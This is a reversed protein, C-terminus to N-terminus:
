QIITISGTIPNVEEVKLDIVFFYAGPTIIGKQRGDWPEAYGQSKFITHGWRNFITVECDPYNALEKINWVDNFGDGDPTFATPIELSGNVGVRITDSTACGTESIAWVTFTTTFDPQVIATTDMSTVVFSAPEWEYEVGIDSSASITAQSPAFVFQDKGGRVVPYPDVRIHVTDPSFPCVGNEVNWLVYQQGIELGFVDTVLASSDDFSLSNVPSSWYGAGVSPASAQVAVANTDCIVIDAQASVEAESSYNVIAMTDRELSCVGNGVAWEILTTGISLGIVDSQHDTSDAIIGTGSVISWTGSGIAPVGAALTVISDHCLEIDVGADAVSPYDFRTVTFSCTDSNGYADVVVFTNITNGVPYFLGSSIGEIQNVTFGACNDLYGPTDFVFISDCISTDAPCLLTPPVTDIVEIIRSCTDTNGSQDYAVYTLVTIGVPFFSGTDLSTTDIQIITDVTCNDTASPWSFQLTAGCAGSDNFVILSDACSIVPDITDLVTISVEVSDTNGFSDTAVFWHESTSDVWSCDFETQSLWISDLTCNDYTGSDMAFVDASALGGTDLYITDSQTFLFPALTDLVVVDVTAQNVNGNVDTVTLTIAITDGHSVCGFAASDITMSAIGCSDWSGTDISDATITAQGGSDLYIIFGQAVVEPAVSDVVTVVATDSHTNGHIDIVTLVVDNTGVHACDFATQSLYMSDIGCADWSGNNIMTTDISQNGSSDLYITIDQTLVAPAVTDHVIVFSSDGAVNGSVDRIFLAVTQTDGVHSCDYNNQSIWSSDIGCNDLSSSDVQSPFIAVLGQSDLYVVLDIAYVTPALTDYVRVQFDNSGVNGSSDRVFLTTTHVISTDICEFITDSVWLSDIACNDTSLSDVQNPSLGVQGNSDLFLDISAVPIVIPAITDLITVTASDSASNGSIDVATFVVVKSTTDACNFDYVSLYTTDISCNDVSGSDLMSSSISAQGNGDLYITINQLQVIPALTDVLTVLASDSSSNGSHDTATLWVAFTGTDACTFSTTDLQLNAIGCSDWTGNNIEAVTLEYNGSSDLFITASQTIVQPAITDYVIVQASASSLNGHIDLAFLSITNAGTDGCGFSDISLYMSDIGCSDWSGNNIASVSTSVVGHSDLYLTINQTIVEPAITDYVVVLTSTSDVNGNVDTVSLTVEITDGHAACNFYSTDIAYGAIGCSDWSASDIWTPDITAQGTSDLFVDITQYALAAPAITDVVQVTAVNSDTNGSIDQAYLTVVQTGVHSCDFDYQGLWMTDIACSDWSGSNIDAVDISAAGFSDLGLTINQTIITPAITDFIFLTAVSESQNGNVDLAFITVLTTGTDGCGFETASLWISDIGCSDWTGNNVAAATTSVQGFSDLYLTQSQWIITPAITDMVRVLAQASDANASADEAFLWVPITDGAAACSFDYQSLWMTDIGCSDWSASDVDLPAISVLGSSDLYVTINKPIVSPGITDIVQVVTLTSDTNGHIDQGYLWTNNNGLHACEFDYQSLWLTDIGCSDWSGNNVESAAINAAGSSDLAVTITQTILTPAITDLIVAYTQGQSANGNVDSATFTIAVTDGVGSCDFSSTDIAISAIGCSDWTASDFDAAVVSQQGFSDLYVLQPQLLIHPAITDYIFISLQASDANGSSDQAILWVSNQGTDACNFMPQTLWMIDIACNDFSFSDVSDPIVTVLGNSDLYATYDVAQVVPRITDEVTITVSDIATNGAEDTATVVLTNAGLEPCSFSTDSLVVDINSSDTCNDSLGDAFVTVKAYAGSWSGNKIIYDNNVPRDWTFQNTGGTLYDDPDLTFTLTGLWCGGLNLASSSDQFQGNLNYNSITTSSEITWALQIVVSDVSANAGLEDTWSWTEVGATSVKRVGACAGAGGWGSLGSDFIYYSKESTTVTNLGFSVNGNSDLYVTTQNLNISPGTTDFVMVTAVDYSINGSADMVFLTDSIGITDACTFISQSLWMTDIACNDFSGANMDSTDISVTGDGNLYLSLNQAIATPFITDIITVTFPASGVNGNIDEAFLTITTQGSDACTFANSSLYFTDIGCSDWSASDAQTGTLSVNGSSDLALVLDKPIVTPSVTDLVTLQASASDLNGNNDLVYLWNTQAAGVHSCDYNYEALYLTDIGCADSSGNDISDATITVSGLLDLYVTINQTVVAPAVTDLVTVNASSAATNGSYDTASLTVSVAATTNACTFDSTDLVYSAIGCSDWTGGDIETYSLTYNGTADLYVTDDVAIVHPAITDIAIVNAVATNTNGNVDVATLTVTTGGSDSCDFDYQDLYMTDIGCSDWSGNNIDAATISAQGFSDLGVTINQAIVTPAITDLVTVYAHATDSNGSTDYASVVVQIASGVDSCDFTSQSIAMSDVGCNDTTGNDLDNSDISATGSSDLYVTINQTLLAPPTTDLVTVDFACVEREKVFLAINDMSSPGGAEHFRVLANSLLPNTNGTASFDFGASVNQLATPSIWAGGTTIDRYSLSITNNMMDVTVRIRRWATPATIVTALTARGAGFIGLVHGNDREYIGCVAESFTVDGDNDADYGIGFHTGWFNRMNDVQIVLVDNSDFAPISWNADNRRSIWLRNNGGLSPVYLGKGGFYQGTDSHNAVVALSTTTNGAVSWNDQGDISGISLDNFSYFALEGQNESIIHRVETVGAPFASGSALGTDLTIDVGCFSSATVSYPYPTSCSDPGLFLTTDAPCSVVPSSSDSVIVMAYASDTNGNGDIATLTVLQLGVDDCDFISDSLSLSSIGCSDWSGANIDTSTISASGTADLHLYISDTIVVPAITDLVQIQVLVSDTNGHIDTAFFWASDIPISACSFSSDSMWRRQLGCSDWTASDIATASTTVAGFSDLYLVVSSNLLIAPAITDKVTITVQASDLNGSPDQAYFWLLHDGTDACSFVSDELWFTLSCNDYSASDCSDAIVTVSGSSDLYAVLNKPIALPVITDYVTVVLSDVSTNGSVDTVTVMSTTSGTDACNFSDPSMVFSSVQCNDYYVAAQASLADATVGRVGGLNGTYLTDPGQTGDISGRMIYDTSGQFRTWYITGSPEHIDIGYIGNQGTYLITTTDTGDMSGRMINQSSRNVWVVDNTSPSIALQRPGNVGDTNTYLTTKSTDSLDIVCIQETGFLEAVYLMDSSPDYDIGLAYASGFNYLLSSSGTGDLNSVRVHNTSGNTYFLRNNTPDIALEHHECCGSSNPLKYVNGAGDAAVRYIDDHNGGGFYLSDNHPAYVIGVPGETGDSASSDIITLAGSGDSTGAYIYNNNTATFYLLGSVDLAPTTDYLWAMGNSDLYLNVDNSFLSPPTTDLITATVSVSDVNGAADWAYFTITQAVATDACSYSEPGSFAISDIGCNDSRTVGFDTEDVIYSGSSNLYVTANTATITPGSTDCVIVTLTDVSANGMGDRARFFLTNSDLDACDYFVSDTFSFTDSTEIVHRMIGTNCRNDNWFGDPRLQGCDENGANNPEGTGWNTYSTPEGNVWVFSNEVLTDTFGLWASQAGVWASVTANETSDTLTTLWGGTNYTSYFADFWNSTSQSIYYNSGAHNGLFSYDGSEAFHLQDAVERDFSCADSSISDAMQGTVFAEGNADLYVKVQNKAIAVPAVTDSKVTVTDVDSCGNTDTSTVTYTGDNLGNVPNTTAGTSWLFSNGTSGSDAIMLISGDAVNFCSEDSVSPTFSERVVIAAFGNTTNQVRTNGSLCTFNLTRGVTFYYIGPTTPANITYTESGSCNCYGGSNRFCENWFGYIGVYYQVICGPCYSGNQSISYNFSLTMSEGPSVFDVNNGTSNINANTITIQRSSITRTYPDPLNTPLSCTTYTIYAFGNATNGGNNLTTNNASAYIYGSGGSGGSWAGGGGGYYGGGGGGGGSPSCGSSGNGLTANSATCWGTYSGGSGGATQTGGTGNGGGCGAGSSGTTGGGNGGNFPSGGCSASGGGGGAVLIRDNLSQGNLRVDTAGGGGGGVQSNGQNGGSAGGNYGGSGVVTGTANGGQGGIYFYLTDGASVPITAQTYGGQGATGINSGSFYARGGAAGYMEVAVSDVGIPVVFSQPSGTYNFTDTSTIQGFALSNPLLWTLTFFLLM